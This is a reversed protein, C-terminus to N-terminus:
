RYLAKVGGWTTAETPVTGPCILSTMGVVPFEENYPWNVAKPVPSYIADYGVVVLSQPGPGSPSCDCESTWSVQVRSLLITEFGSKPLNYAIAMGDQSNGLALDNVGVNPLEGIYMVAPVTEFRIRYDIATILANLNLAAVYLNTVQGAPHCPSQTENYDYDFYVQIFPVQALAGQTCVGLLVTALAVALAKKMAVFEKALGFTAFL